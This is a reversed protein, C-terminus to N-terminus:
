STPMVEDSYGLIIARAFAVQFCPDADKLAAVGLLKTNFSASASDDSGFRAVLTAPLGDGQKCLYLDYYGFEGLAKDGDNMEYEYRMKEGECQM